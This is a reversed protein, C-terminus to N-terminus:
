SVEIRQVCMCIQRSKEFILVACTLKGQSGLHTGSPVEPFNALIKHGEPVPMYFGLKFGVSILTCHLWLFVQTLVSQVKAFLRTMLDKSKNLSTSTLRRMLRFTTKKLRWNGPIVTMAARTRFTKTIIFAYLSIVSSQLLLKYLNCSHQLMWHVAVAACTNLHLSDATEISFKHILYEFTHFWWECAEHTFPYFYTGTTIKINMGKAREM